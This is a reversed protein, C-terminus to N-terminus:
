EDAHGVFHCRCNNQDPFYHPRCLRTRAEQQNFGITRRGASDGRGRTFSEWAQPWNWNGNELFGLVLLKKVEDLEAFSLGETDATARDLNIAASISPHWNEKIFRHRLAADPRPFHMVIDIRGPRRFAPDLDEL